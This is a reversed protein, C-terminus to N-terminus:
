KVIEGFIKLACCFAFMLNYGGCIGNVDMIEGGVFINPDKHLSLSNHIEILDIGGKAVQAFEMQYTDIIPIIFNHIDINNENVYDLLKPALITSYDDYDQNISLDLKIYPNNLTKLENYYSSDNMICIGSIGDDKFIVEGYEHHIEKSDNYLYTMVKARVGSIPKININTKFGVLSPKFDKFQLNLGKIFKPLEYKKFSANSGTAIVVKDFPGYTDNIYYKYNSREIKDVCLNVFNAKSNKLLVNLVSQSSESIPYMRGEQDVKTYIKLENFYNFLEAQKDSVIKSFPNNHYYKKNFQKNSINCKGNGSALIKSGIKDKYFITHNINKQSLKTSLLLGCAGAGIIAINM